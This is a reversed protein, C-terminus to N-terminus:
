LKIKDLLQKVYNYCYNVEYDLGTYYEDKYDKYPIGIIYNTFDNYLFEATPIQTLTLQNDENYVSRMIPIVCRAFFESDPTTEVTNKVCLQTIAELNNACHEIKDDTLYDLLGTQKWKTIINNNM